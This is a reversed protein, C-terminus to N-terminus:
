QNIAKVCVCELMGSRSFYGVMRSISALFDRMMLHDM